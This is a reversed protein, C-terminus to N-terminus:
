QGSYLKSLLRLAGIGGYSALAGIKNKVRVRPNALESARKEKVVKLCRNLAEENEVGYKLMLLLMNYHASYRRDAAAKKLAPYKRIMFEELSDTVDLVDLRSDSWQCMFSQPNNRYFYYTFPLYVIREAAEYFRYFADLDEYRIKERFRIDNGLMRREILVGCPSNLLRQQYLAINMTETYTHVEPRGIHRPVRVGSTRWDDKFRTFATICVQAENDRLAAYMTALAEPHLADDSDVFTIYRGRARDIGVNRARSVGGNEQRVLIFREDIHEYNAAIAATSDESGDDIILVEFDDLTQMAISDLCQELYKEANYAPIIVSILPM